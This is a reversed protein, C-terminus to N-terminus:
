LTSNKLFTYYKNEFAIRLLERYRKWQDFTIRGMGYQLGISHMIHGYQLVWTSENKTKM